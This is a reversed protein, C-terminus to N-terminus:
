RPEDIAVKLTASALVQGASTVTAEAQQLAGVEAVVRLRVELVEGVAPERAVRLGTVAGIYGIGVPRHWVYKCLFGTRAASCQAMVEILGAARMRGDSGVFVNDARVELRTRTEAADCHLLADALVFPPRQPLLDAVVIDAFPPITPTM